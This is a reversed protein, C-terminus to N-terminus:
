WEYKSTVQYTNGAQLSVRNLPFKHYHTRVYTGMQYSELAGSGGGGMVDEVWDWYDEASAECDCMAAATMVRDENDVAGAM